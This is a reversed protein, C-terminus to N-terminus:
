ALGVIRDGFGRVSGIYFRLGSLRAKKFEFKKDWEENEKKYEM